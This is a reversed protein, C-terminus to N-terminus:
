ELADEAGGGPLPLTALYIDPWYRQGGWYGPVSETSIFSVSLKRREGPAVGASRAV